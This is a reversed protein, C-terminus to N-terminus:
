ETQEEILATVAANKELQIISTAPNRNKLYLALIVPHIPFVVSDMHSEIYEQITPETVFRTIGMVEQMSAPDNINEPTLKIADIIATIATIRSITTSESNTLIRSIVNVAMNHSSIGADSHQINM